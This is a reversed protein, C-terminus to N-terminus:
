LSRIWSVSPLLNLYIVKHLADVHSSASAHCLPQDFCLKCPLLAQGVFMTENAHSPATERADVFEATGNPLRVLMFHGGGLGSAVPSMLGQCLCTAIASDVANGGAQLVGVGADM